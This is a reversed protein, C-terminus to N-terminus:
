DSLLIFGDSEVYEKVYQYNHKPTGFCIPCRCGGRFSNFHANYTHGEDCKITLKTKSNVYENSLLVYGDKEIFSKVYEYTLKQPM